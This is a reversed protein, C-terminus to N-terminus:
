DQRIQGIKNPDFEAFLKIIFPGFISLNLQKTAIYFRDLIDQYLISLPKGGLFMLANMFDGLDINSSYQSNDVNISNPPFKSADQM